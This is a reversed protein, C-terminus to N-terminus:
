PAFLVQSSVRHAGEGGEWGALVGASEGGARGEERVAGRAARQRMARKWAMRGGGARAEGLHTEEVGGRCIWEEREANAGGEACGGGARGVRQTTEPKALDGGAGGACHEIEAVSTAARAALRGARRESRAM